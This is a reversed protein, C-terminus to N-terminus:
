YPNRKSPNERYFACDVSAHCPQQLLICEQHLGRYTCWAVHRSINSSFDTKGGQYPNQKKESEYAEFLVDILSKVDYGDSIGKIFRRTIGSTIPAIDNGFLEVFFYMLYKKIGSITSAQECKIDEIILTNHFGASYPNIGGTCIFRGFIANGDSPYNLNQFVCHALSMISNKLQIYRNHLKPQSFFFENFGITKISYTIFVNCDVGKSTMQTAQICSHADTYMPLLLKTDDICSNRLVKSKQHNNFNSIQENLQRRQEHWQLLAQTSHLHDIRLANIEYVFNQLATVEVRIDEPIFPSSNLIVGM